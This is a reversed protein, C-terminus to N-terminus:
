FYWQGREKDTPKELAVVRAGRPNLHEMFRKITGGKGAADRGEFLVVVRQGTDKIWAQVKLLEVQLQAKQAEYHAAKLATEYPYADSQFNVRLRTEDQLLEQFGPMAQAETLGARVWPKAPRGAAHHATDDEGGIRLDHLKAAGAKIEKAISKVAKPTLPKATLAAADVPASEPAASAPADPAASPIDGTATDTATPKAAQAM